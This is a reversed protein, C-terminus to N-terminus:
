DAVQSEVSIRPATQFAKALVGHCEAYRCEAYHCEAYRCENFHCEAYCNCFAASLVIVSLTTLTRIRVTRLATSNITHTVKKNNHQIVKHQTANNFISLINNHQTDNYLTDNIGLLTDLM